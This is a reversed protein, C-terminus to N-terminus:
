EQSNTVVQEGTAADITISEEDENEFTDDYSVSINISGNNNSTIKIVNEHAATGLTLTKASLETRNSNNGYKYSIVYTISVSSETTSAEFYATTNEISLVPKRSTDDTKYVEIQVDDISPMNSQIDARVRANKAKGCEISVSAQQGAIVNVSSSGHYWADGYTDKAALADELNKYNYAQVTYDGASFGHTTGTWETDGVMITWDSFDSVTQEARTEMSNDASVSVNIYGKNDAVDLDADSVCATASLALAIIPLFNKKMIM